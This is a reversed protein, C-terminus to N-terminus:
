QLFILGHLESFMVNRDEQHYIEVLLQVVLVQICKTQPTPPAKERAKAKQMKPLNQAQDILKVLTMAQLNMLHVMTNQTKISRSKVAILFLLIVIRLRKKSSLTVGM